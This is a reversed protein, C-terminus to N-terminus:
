SKDTSADAEPASPNLPASTSKADKADKTAADGTEKTATKRRTSRSRRSTAPKKASSPAQESSQEAPRAMGATVIGEGAGAQAADNSPAMAEASKEAGSKEITVKDSAEAKVAESAKASAKRTSRARGTSRRSSGTAKKPQATGDPKEDGVTATADSGADPNAGASESSHRAAPSDIADSGADSNASGASNSALSDSSSAAPSAPSGDSLSAGSDAIARPAASIPAGGTHGAHEPQGEAGTEAPSDVSKAQPRGEGSGRRRSSTRTRSSAQRTRAARGPRVDHVEPSAKESEAAEAANAPKANDAPAKAAAEGLTSAHTEDSASLPARDGIGDSAPPQESSASQATTATEPVIAQREEKARQDGLETVQREDGNAQSLEPGDGAADMAGVIRHTIRSSRTRRRRSSRSTGHGSTGAQESPFSTPTPVSETAPEETAPTDAVVNAGPADSANPRAGSADSVAHAHTDSADSRAGSTGGAAELLMGLGGHHPGNAADLEVLARLDTAIQMMQDALQPLGFTFGAHVIGDEIYKRLFGQCPSNKQSLATRYINSFLDAVQVGASFKSDLFRVDIDSVLPQDRHMLVNGVSDRVLDEYSERLSGRIDMSLRYTVGQLLDGRQLYYALAQGAMSDYLMDKDLKRESVLAARPDLDALYITLDNEEILTRALALKQPTKMQSAKSENQTVRNKAVSNELTALDRVLVIAMTFVEGTYGLTGSEDLYLKVPGAKTSTSLYMPM